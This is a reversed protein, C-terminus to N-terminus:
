FLFFSLFSFKNGAPQLMEIRGPLLAEILAGATVLPDSGLSRQGLERGGRPHRDGVSWRAAKV